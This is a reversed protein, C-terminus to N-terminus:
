HSRELQAMIEKEELTIKFQDFASLCSATKSVCPILADSNRTLKIQSKDSKWNLYLLSHDSKITEASAEKLSKQDE